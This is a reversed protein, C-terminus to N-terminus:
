KQINKFIDKRMLLKRFLAIAPGGMLVAILTGIGVDSKALIGGIVCLADTGIRIWRFWNQRNIKESIIIAVADYPSLGMNTEIYIAAGLFVMLLGFLFTIIRIELSFIEMFKIKNILNLVIDSTYGSTVMLYITGFGIKSKDFIFIGILLIFCMILVWTGFSIGLQKAIGINLCTIPDVGLVAYRMFSLGTSLITIGIIALIIRYILKQKETMQKVNDM